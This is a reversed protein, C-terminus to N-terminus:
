VKKRGSFLKYLLGLGLLGGVALGLGGWFSVGPILSLLAALGALAGLVVILIFLAASGLGAETTHAPAGVSARRLRLRPLRVTPEAVALVPPAAFQARRGARRAPLPRDPPLAAPAPPAAATVAPPAPLGVAARPAPASLRIPQFSFAAQESRCGALFAGLLLPWRGARVVRM